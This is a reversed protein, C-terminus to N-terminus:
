FWHEIRCILYQYLVKKYLHFSSAPKFDSDNATKAALLMTTESNLARMESVVFPKSKKKM